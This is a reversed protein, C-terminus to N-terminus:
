VARSRENRVELWRGMLYAASAIKEQLPSTAEESRLIEFVKEKSCYERLAPSYEQDAELREIMALKMQVSLYDSSSLVFPTKRNKGLGYKRFNSQHAVRLPHKDGLSGRVNNFSDNVMLEVLRHDLYPVRAEVGYSASIADLRRLTYNPLWHKLDFNLYEELSDSKIEDFEKARRLQFSESISILIEYSKRPCSEALFRKLKRKELEGFRGPYPSMKKALAWVLPLLTALHKKKIGPFSILNKIKELLAHHVYGALIEDAGEGSFAVKFDKAINKFLLNTPGIITDLVPSELYVLAEDWEGLWNGADLEILQHKVGLSKCLAKAKNVDEENERLNLTYSREIKNLANAQLMIYSSDVGGSLLSAMPVKSRVRLDISSSLLEEFKLQSFSSNPALYSWYSTTTVEEGEKWKLFHGPSLSFINKHIGSPGLEYRFALLERIKEDDYSGGSLRSLLWSNTSLAIGKGVPSYYLPKIGVRDRAALISKEWTDYFVFSFMGNLKALWAEGELALGKALVETDGDAVFSLGKNKLYDRLEIYNYIEGNYVLIYRNNVFYPQVDHDISEQIALRSHFLEFGAGIQHRYDDPGRPSIDRHVLRKDQEELPMLNFLCLHGCM